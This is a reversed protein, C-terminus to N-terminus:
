PNPTATPPTTDPKEFMGGQRRVCLQQARRPNTTDNWYPIVYWSYLGAEYNLSGVTVTLSTEQTDFTRRLGSPAEAVVSYNVTGQLPPFSFTIEQDGALLNGASVFEGQWADCINVSLNFEPPVRFDRNRPLAIGQLPLDNFQRGTRVLRALIWGSGAGYDIHIWQRGDYRRLFTGARGLLIVSTDIPLQAITPYAFDPGVRVIANNATILGFATDDDQAHITLLALIFLSITIIIAILRKM